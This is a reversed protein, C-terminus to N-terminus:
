VVDVLLIGAVHYFVRDRKAPVFCLREDFAKHLNKAGQRRRLFRAQFVLNM